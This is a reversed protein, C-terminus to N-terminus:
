GRCADGSGRWGITARAREPDPLLHRHRQAQAGRLGWVGIPNRRGAHPRDKGWAWSRWLVGSCCNVRGSHTAARGVIIVGDITTSRM